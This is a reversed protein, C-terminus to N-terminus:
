RKEPMWWYDANISFSATADCVTHILDEMEEEGGTAGRKSALRSANRALPEAAAPRPRHVRGPRHLHGRDRADARGGAVRGRRAAGRMRDGRRGSVLRAHVGAAESLGRHRRAPHPGAVVALRRSVGMALRPEMRLVGRAPVTAAGLEGGD